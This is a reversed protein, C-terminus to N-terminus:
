TKKRASLKLLGYLLPQKFLVANKGAYLFMNLKNTAGVQQYIDIPVYPNLLFFTKRM